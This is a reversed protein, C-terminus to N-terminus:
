NLAAVETVKFRLDSRWSQLEELAQGKQPDGWFQEAHQLAHQLARADALKQTAAQGSTWEAWLWRYYQKGAREVRRALVSGYTPLLLALAVALVLAVNSAQVGPVGLAKLTEAFLIDLGVFLGFAVGAGPAGWRLQVPIRLKAAEFRLLYRHAALGEARLATPDGSDNPRNETLVSRVLTECASPLPEPYKAQLESVERQVDEVWRAEEVSDSPPVWSADHSKMM